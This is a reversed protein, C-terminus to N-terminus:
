KTVIQKEAGEEAGSYGDKNWLWKKPVTPIVGSIPQPDCSVLCRQNLGDPGCVIDAGSGAKLNEESVADRDGGV